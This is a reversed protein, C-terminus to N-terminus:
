FIFNCQQEPQNQHANTETKKLKTGSQIESLLGSRGGSPPGSSLSPPPPPPGPPPPPPPGGM